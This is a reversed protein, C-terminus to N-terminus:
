PMIDLWSPLNDIGLEFAKPHSDSKAINCKPCLLQVNSDINMGGKAIPVIHDVHRSDTIDISCYACKFNQRILLEKIIGNSLKGLGNCRVNIKEIRRGYPESRKKNRRVKEAAKKKQKSMAERIPRTMEMRARKNEANQDKMVQLEIRRAERREEFYDPDKKVYKSPYNVKMCDKCVPRYGTKNRPSPYFSDVTKCTACQKCTLNLM